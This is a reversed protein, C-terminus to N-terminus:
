DEFELITGLIQLMTGILSETTKDVAVPKSLVNPPVIRRLNHIAL